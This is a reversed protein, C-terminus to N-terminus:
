VSKTENKEWDETRLMGYFQQDELKAYMYWEPTSGPPNYEDNYEKCYKIAEEKTDFEKESDVRSGWGAESEIILVKTKKDTM